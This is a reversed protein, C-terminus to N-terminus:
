SIKDIGPLFQSYILPLALSNSGGARGVQPFALRGGFLLGHVSHTTVWDSLSGVQQMWGARRALSALRDFISRLDARAKKLNTWGVGRALFRQEFAVPGAYETFVEM